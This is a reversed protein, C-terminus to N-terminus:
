AASYLFSSFLAAHESFETDSLDKVVLYDQLKSFFLNCVLVPTSLKLEKLIDKKLFFTKAQHTKTKNQTKKLVKQKM